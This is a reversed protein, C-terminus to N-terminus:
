NKKLKRFHNILHMEKQKFNKSIKIMLQHHLVFMQFSVSLNKSRQHFVFKRQIKMLLKKILITKLFPSLKPNSIKHMQFKQATAVKKLLSMLIRSLLIVPPFLPLLIQMMAQNFLNLLILLLNRFILFHVTQQSAKKKANFLLVPKMLTNKFIM